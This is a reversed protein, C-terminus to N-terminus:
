GPDRIRDVIASTSLSDVQELVRVEGGYAEVIEWGVVATKDPYDGGKVLLDPKLDELLARPTDEEFKVVWDVSELAALVEM